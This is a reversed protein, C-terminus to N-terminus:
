GTELRVSGLVTQKKKVTLVGDSVQLVTGNDGTVVQPFLPYLEREPYLLIRRLQREQQQLRRELREIRRQWNNYETDM